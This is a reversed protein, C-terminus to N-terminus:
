KAAKALAQAIIKGEKQKQVIVFSSLLKERFEDVYLRKDSIAPDPKNTNM